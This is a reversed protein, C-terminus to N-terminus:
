LNGVAGGLALGTQVEENLNPHSIAGEMSNIDDEDLASSNGYSEYDEDMSGDEENGLHIDQNTVSQFNRMNASPRGDNSSNDLM